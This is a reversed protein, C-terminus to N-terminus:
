RPPLIEVSAAAAADLARSRSAMAEDGLYPVLPIDTWGDDNSPLVAAVVTGAGSIRRLLLAAHGQADTRVDVHNGNALRLRVAVAGAPQSCTRWIRELVREEFYAGIRRRSIVDFGCTAERVTSVLVSTAHVDLHVVVNGAGAADIPALRRSVEVSAIPESFRHRTRSRVHRTCAGLGLACLLALLVCTSRHGIM